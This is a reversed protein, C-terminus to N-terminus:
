VPGTANEVLKAFEEITHFGTIILRHQYWPKETEYFWPWLGGGGNGIAGRYGNKKMLEVAEERYGGYPWALFEVDVGFKSEINERSEVVEKYLQSEPAEELNAHTMTHGEIDHGQAIMERVQDDELAIGGGMIFFVGKFGRKNMEQAAQWQSSRGDDFTFVVPKEPLEGGEYMYDYVQDFTVSTYGHEKLWDLQQIFNQLPVQFEGKEKGTDHYELVPIKFKGAAAQSPKEATLLEGLVFGTKSNYSVRQWEKGDAGEVPAGITSVKAGYPVVALVDAKTDPKARLNAGVDSSIYLVEGPEPTLTNTPAPDPATPVPDETPAPTGGPPETVARKPTNTAAPAPETEMPAAPSPAGPEDAPVTTPGAPPPTTTAQVDGASKTPQAEATQAAVQRTATPAPEKVVGGCAVVLLSLLAVVVVGGGAREIAFRSVVSRM